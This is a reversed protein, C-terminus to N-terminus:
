WNWPIIVSPGIIDKLDEKSELYYDVLFKEIKPDIQKHEIQKSNISKYFFMLSNKINPKHNIYRRILKLWIYLVIRHFNKSRASYTINKPQFNYDSYFSKDIELFSCISELFGKNDNKFDEFFLIKIQDKNFYRLFERIYYSYRGAPLSKLHKKKFSITNDLTSGNLKEKCYGIFQEFTIHSPIQMQSSVFFNYYSYLRDIPDRLIFIIKPSVLHSRIRKAVIDGLQLYGVTAEMFIKCNTNSKDNDFLDSVSRSRKEFYHKYKHSFIGPEKLSCASVEPHESLYSFVSTTGAKYAGGIIFNPKELYLSNM